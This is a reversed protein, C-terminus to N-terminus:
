PNDSYTIEAEISRHRLFVLQTINLNLPQENGCNPCKTNITFTPNYNKRDLTVNILARETEIITRYYELIEDIEKLCIYTANGEDDDGDYVYVARTWMAYINIYYEPDGNQINSAALTVLADNLTPAAFEYVNHTYTSKVRFSVVTDKYVKMMSELDDKAGLIKELIAKQNDDIDDYKIISKSNYTAEFQKGRRREQPALSGVCQRSFCNFASTIMETSSAVYIAYLGTDLDDYRFWSCFDAFTMILNGEVDYKNRTTSNNFNDYLFQAKKQLLSLESETSEGNEDVEGIVANTLQFINAGNFTVYDRTNYMPLSYHALSCSARHITKFKQGRDVEKVKLTSLEQDEITVLRIKNTRVLKEEQEPTFEIKDADKASVEINVIEPHELYYNQREEMVQKNLRAKAAKDAEAPSFGENVILDKRFAKIEKVFKSSVDSFHHPNTSKIGALEDEIIKNYVDTTSMEEDTSNKDAGVIIDDDDDDDYDNNDIRIEGTAVDALEDTTSEATVPEEETNHTPLGLEEADDETVALADNVTDAGMAFQEIADKPINM